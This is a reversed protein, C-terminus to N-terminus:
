YGETNLALIKSIIKFVFFDWQVLRTNLVLIGFIVGSASICFLPWFVLQREAVERGLVSLLTSSTM